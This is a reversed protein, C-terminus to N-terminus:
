RKHLVRSPSNACHHIFQFILPFQQDKDPEANADNQADREGIYEWQNVDGLVGELPAETRIIFGPVNWSEHFELGITARHAIVAPPDGEIITMAPTCKCLLIVAFPHKCGCQRDNRALLDAHQEAAEFLAADLLVIQTVLSLCLFIESHSSALGPQVGGILM